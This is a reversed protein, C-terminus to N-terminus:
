YRLRYFVTPNTNSIPITVSNVNASGPIDFWNTSGSKLGKNLANTQSQLTWGIHDAPWSITLNGGSVSNSIVPSPPTTTLPGVRLVGDTLLTSTDWALHNGPFPTIIPVTGSINTFGQFQFLPIAQGVFYPTVSQNNIVFTGGINLTGVGTVQDNTGNNNDVDFVTTSLANLTLTGGNMTLPGGIKSILNNKLAAPYPSANTWDYLDGPTLTGGANITVNGGVSGNGGFIGGGNVNVATAGLSGYNTHNASASVANTRAEVEVLLAGNAVTTPGTYTNTNYLELCGSTVSLALKHNSNTTGVDSNTDVLSFRWTNTTYGAYTLLSDLNTSSNGITNAQFIDFVESMYSISQNHGNLDIMVRRDSVGSFLTGASLVAVNTGFANDAGVILQGREITNIVKWNNPSDLEVTTFNENFNKAEGDGQGISISLSPDTVALNLANSIVTKVGHFQIIGSLAIFNTSTLNTSLATKNTTILPGVLYLGNSGKNMANFSLIGNTGHLYIPGLWTGDGQIGAGTNFTSLRLTKTANYIGNSGFEVVPLGAVTSNSVWLTTNDPIANSNFVNLNGQCVMTNGFYTNTGWLWVSGASGIGFSPDTSSNTVIISSINPASGSIPGNLVLNESGAVRMFATSNTSISIPGDLINTGAVSGQYFAEIAANNTLFLSRNGWDVSYPLGTGNRVANTPTLGLAANALITINTGSGTNPGDWTTGSNAFILRGQGIFINSLNASSGTQIYVDSSGTKTLANGAGSLNTSIGWANSLAGFTTPGNLTVSALANTIVGGRNNIAGNGDFGVGSVTISSPSLVPNGKIDLSAGPSIVVPGTGLYNTAGAAWTGATLTGNKINFTGSFGSGNATLTLNNTGDKNFNGTGYLDSVLTGNTNPQAFTVTGGTMVIGVGTVFNNGLNSFTTSGGNVNTIASTTIAGKGNFVYNSNVNEMSMWMPGVPGTVNVVFNSATDDFRVLDSSFFVDRTAGNIWNTTTQVDWNTANLPNGLNNTNNGGWTLLPSQTMNTVCVRGPTSALPVLGEVYRAGNNTIVILTNINTTLQGAAYRILVNTGDPSFGGIANLNFTTTGSLNLGGTVTIGDSTGFSPGVDWMFYAGSNTLSGGVTIQGVNNSGGLVVNAGAQLTLSGSIPANVMTSGFNQGTLTGTPGVKMDGLFTGELDMTRNVTFAGAGTHNMTAGPGVYVDLTNPLSGTSGVTLTGANILTSGVYSAAANLTLNGNGYKILSYPGGAGETITSNFVVDGGFLTTGGSVIPAAVNTVTLNGLLTVPANLNFSASPTSLSSVSPALFPTNIASNYFTIPKTIFNQSNTTYASSSSGSALITYNSLILNGNTGGLQSNVLVLNGNTGIYIDGNGPAVVDQLVFNKAGVKTFNHGNLDFLGTFPPIVGGSGVGAANGSSFGINASNANIYCNGGLTTLLGFNHSSTNTLVGMPVLNTSTLNTITMLVGSGTIQLHKGVATSGTMQSVDFTAGDHIYITGTNAGLTQPSGGGSSVPDPCRFVGNYVDIPGTFMNSFTAFANTATNNITISCNGAINGRTLTQGSVNTISFCKAGNITISGPYLLGSPCINTSGWNNGATDDFTVNDGQYFRDRSAGNLWNSTSLDWVFNSSANGVFPMSWVLNAPSWNTVHLNIQGPVSTYDFYGVNNGGRTQTPNLVFQGHVTGAPNYTVLTYNSGVLLPGNFTLTVPNNNLWVDGTVNILDNIGSNTNNAGLNFTIAPNTVLGLNPSNSYILTGSLNLTGVGSAYPSRFGASLDGGPSLNSYVMITGAGSITGSGILSGVSVSGNTMNITGGALQIVSIGNTPAAVDGGVNVVASDNVSLQGYPMNVATVADGQDGNRYAITLNANVTLVANSRVTVFCPATPSVNPNCCSSANTGQKYAINLNNVNVTGSEFLVGGLGNYGSGGSGLTTSDPLSRGVYMTDVLMDVKGGSLDISGGAGNGPTIILNNYDQIRAQLDGLSLVATRSGDGASGRLKFTPLSAAYVYAPNFVMKSSTPNQSSRQGGVLLGDTNFTNTVGLNLVALSNQNPACAVIIGPAALNATTTINNTKALNLTGSVQGPNDVSAGVLVQALSANFNNLGSLDLTDLGKMSVSMLGATDNLFLTGPGTITTLNILGSATYWSGNGAVDGVSLTPYASGYGGVTLTVNSQILTTDYHQQGLNVATATYNLTGISFNVDVINNVAGAVNTTGLPYFADEFYVLNAPGPPVGYPGYSKWNNGFSWNLNTNLGGWQLTFQAFSSVISATLFVAIVALKRTLNMNTPKTKPAPRFTGVGKAFAPSEGCADTMKNISKQMPQFTKVCPRTPPADACLKGESSKRLKDFFGAASLV